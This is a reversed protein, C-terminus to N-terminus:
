APQPMLLGAMKRYLEEPNFPKNLFDNMGCRRYQESVEYQSSATLAIIPLTSYLGNKMQRILRSAQYGDMEPMQLDMLVLDVRHGELHEVAERGNEVVKLEVGWKELVNRAVLQNIANDEALLIKKGSLM